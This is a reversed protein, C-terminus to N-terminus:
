RFESYVTLSARNKSSLLREITTQDRQATHSGISAQYIILQEAIREVIAVHGYHGPRTWQMIFPTREPYSWLHAKLEEKDSRSADIKFDETKYSKFHKKAYLDFDNAIFDGTPFGARILVRQLYLNCATGISKGEKVMVDFATLIFKSAEKKVPTAPQSVTPKVVPQSEPKPDPKIEPKPKEIPTQTAPKPDNPKQLVPKQTVPTKLPPPELAPPEDIIPTATDPKTTNSSDLPPSEFTAPINNVTQNERLTETQNKQFQNDANAPSINLGCSFQLNILVLFLIKVLINNINHQSKKKM